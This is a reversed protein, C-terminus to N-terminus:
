LHDFLDTRDQNSFRCGDRERLADIVTKLESETEIHGKVLAAELLLKLDWVEVDRQSAMEAAHGDDTLLREERTTAVAICEADTFSLSADVIEDAFQVEAERLSYVQLWGGRYSKVADIREVFQYGAVEDRHLEDLVSPVTGVQDFLAPLLELREIKTLSSLINNDVFM